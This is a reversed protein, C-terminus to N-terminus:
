EIIDVGLGGFVQEMAEDVVDAISYGTEGFWRKIAVLERSRLYIYFGLFVVDPDDQGALEFVYREAYPLRKRSESHSYESLIALAEEASSAEECRM